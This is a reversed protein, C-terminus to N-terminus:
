CAAVRGLGGLLRAGRLLRGLQGLLRALGGRREQARQRQGPPGV